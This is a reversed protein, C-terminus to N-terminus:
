NGPIAEMLTRSSFVWVVTKVHPYAAAMAEIRAPGQTFGALSYVTKVPLGTEWALQAGLHASYKKYQNLFSDGYLLVDASDPEAYRGGKGDTVMTLRVTDSEPLRFKEAMDGRFGMLMTDKLAFGQAPKAQMGLEYAMREAALRIADEDWHTDTHPFLRRTNKAAFFDARLDLYEVKLSDLRRLFLNKSPSVDYVDRGSLLEPYTEVKSPVPVVLLRISKARLRRALEGILKANYELYTWKLMAARLDELYYLHGGRGRLVYKEPDGASKGDGQALVRILAENQAYFPDKGRCGTQLCAAAALALIFPLNALGPRM